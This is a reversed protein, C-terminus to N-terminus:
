YKFTVDATGSNQGSPMSFGTSGCRVVARRAADYAAREAQTEIPTKSKISSVDIRSGSFSFNLTTEVSMAERSLAGVNWCPKFQQFITNNDSQENSAAKELLPKVQDHLVKDTLPGTIRSVIRGEGDVVFTEPVGLVGWDIGMKNQPDTGIKAFPNGMDSLFGEAYAPKDKWNVGYITVGEQSLKELNSHEARCPACWSAWFNVLKLNGDRLDADSFTPHSGLATVTVPPAPPIAHTNQTDISSFAGAPSGNLETIEDVSIQIRSGKIEVTGRGSITCLDSYSTLFSPHDCSEQISERAKRGADIRVTFPDRNTDYLTFNDESSDYKIRGEFHVQTKDMSTLYDPLSMEEAQVCPASLLGILAVLHGLFRKLPLDRRIYGKTM